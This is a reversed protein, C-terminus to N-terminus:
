FAGVKFCEGDDGNRRQCLFLVTLVFGNEKPRTQLALVATTSGNSGVSYLFVYSTPSYTSFVLAGKGSM